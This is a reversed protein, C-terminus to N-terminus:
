VGYIRAATEVADLAGLATRDVATQPPVEAM